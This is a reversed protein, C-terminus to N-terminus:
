TTMIESVPTLRDNVFDVDRTTVLGLLRGGLEGSDTICASTFGRTTQKAPRRAGNAHTHPRHPHPSVLARRRGLGLM